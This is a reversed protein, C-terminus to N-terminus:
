LYSKYGITVTSLETLYFNKNEESFATVRIPWVWRSASQYVGDEGVTCSTSSSGTRALEVTIVTRLDAVDLHLHSSIGGFVRSLYVGAM